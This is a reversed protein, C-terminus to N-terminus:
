LHTRKITLISGEADGSVYLTGDAGHTIGAFPGMAGCLPPFARLAKPVIGAPAGVPLQSAISAREGSTLNYRILDKAGSDVVYLLDRHIVLGEPNILGDLVVEPKDGQLRVVRGSREVEWGEAASPENVSRYRSGMPPRSNAILKTKKDQM